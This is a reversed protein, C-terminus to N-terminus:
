NNGGTMDEPRLLLPGSRSPFRTSLSPGCTRMALSGVKPAPSTGVEGAWQHTYIVGVPMNTSVEGAWQYTHVAGVPTNTGVEGAWQHIHVAGVPTNTLTDSLFCLLSTLHSLVEAARPEALGTYLSVKRKLVSVLLHVGGAKAQHHQLDCFPVTLRPPHSALAM